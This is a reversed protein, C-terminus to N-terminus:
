GKNLIETMHTAMEAPTPIGGMGQRTVSHSAIQTAFRAAEWPDKTSVMRVFFSTGFVDGAGTADVEPLEPARFRRLDGNWYLRAGYCGETVALVKVLSHMGEIIEENGSVDEVSIVVASAFPLVSNAERWPTYYVHGQEDWARMWGQPTVGIFSEPFGQVLNPDLEGAVPGLHVIPTKLWYDPVASIDLIEARHHLRQIRGNPTYINEFTTAVAAPRNIISIGELEPFKLDSPVSTVIGVRLGLARATLASYAATGGLRFGDPIIDQTLHGIVLYDIPEFSKKNQM